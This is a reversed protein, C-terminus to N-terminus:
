NDSPWSWLQINQENTEIKKMRYSDFNYTQLLELQSSDIKIKETIELNEMTFILILEQNKNFDWKLM